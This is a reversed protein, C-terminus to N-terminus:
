MEVQLLGMTMLTPLTRVELSFSGDKFDYAGKIM